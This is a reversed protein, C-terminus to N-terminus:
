SVANELGGKNPPRQVRFRYDGDEEILARLTESNGFAAALFTATVNASTLNNILKNRLLSILLKTGLFSNKTKAMQHLHHVPSINMKFFSKSHQFSLLLENDESEAVHIFLNLIDVLSNNYKNLLYNAFM